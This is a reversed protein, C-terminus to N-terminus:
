RAQARAVDPKADLRAPITRWITRDRLPRVPGNRIKGFQDRWRQWDGQATV